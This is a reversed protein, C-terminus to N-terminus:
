GRRFEGPLPNDHYADCEAHTARRWPADWEPKIWVDDHQDQVLAGPKLLASDAIVLEGGEVVFSRIRPTTWRDTTSM